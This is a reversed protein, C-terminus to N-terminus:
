EYKIDEIPIGFGNLLILYPIDMIKAAIKISKNIQRIEGNHVNSTNYIRPKPKM